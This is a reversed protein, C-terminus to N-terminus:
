RIIEWLKVAGLIILALTGLAITACIVGVVIDLSTRPPLYVEGDEDKLIEPLGMERLIQAVEHPYDSLTKLRAKRPLLYLLSRPKKGRHKSLFLEIAELYESKRAGSLFLFRGAEPLDGM